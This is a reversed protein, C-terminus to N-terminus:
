GFSLNSKGAHHLPAQTSNDELLDFPGRVEWIRRVLRSQLASPPISSRLFARQRAWEPPPSERWRNLMNNGGGFTVPRNCMPWMSLWVSISMMVASAGAHTSKQREPQRTRIVRANGGLHHHLPLQGCFAL